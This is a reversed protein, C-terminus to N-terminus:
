LRSVHKTLTVDRFFIFTSRGKVNEPKPAEGEHPVSMRGGLPSRTTVVPFFQPPALYPQAEPMRSPFQWYHSLNESVSM